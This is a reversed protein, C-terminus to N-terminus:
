HEGFTVIQIETYFLMLMVDKQCSMCGMISAVLRLTEQIVRTENTEVSFMLLSVFQSM